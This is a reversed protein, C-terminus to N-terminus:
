IESDVNRQDIEIELRRTPAGTVLFDYNGPKLDKLGVYKTFDFTVFHHRKDDVLAAIMRYNAQNEPILLEESSDGPGLDGVRHEEGIFGPNNVHGLVVDELFIDSDNIIRISISLDIEERGACGILSIILFILILTFSKKKYIM